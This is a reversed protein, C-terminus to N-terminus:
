KYKNNHFNAFQKFRLASLEMKQQNIKEQKQKKEEDFLSPYFEEISPMKVKSDIIRAASFGIMNALIYDFTAKEQAKHKEIRQKSRVSRFVEGVTMEWFDRETIGCDLALEM